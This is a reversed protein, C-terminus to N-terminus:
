SLPHVWFFFVCWTFQRAWLGIGLCYDNLGHALGTMAGTTVARVAASAVDGRLRVTFGLLIGASRLREIRNQVTGRSVGLHKALTAAPLRADARLLQILRRDTDDLGIETM